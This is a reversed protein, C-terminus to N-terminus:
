NLLLLSFWFMFMNQFDNHPFEKKVVKGRDIRLSNTYGLSIILIVNLIKCM